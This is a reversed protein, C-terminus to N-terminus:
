VGSLELALERKRIDRQERLGGVAAPRLARVVSVPEHWEASEVVRQRIRAACAGSGNRKRASVL